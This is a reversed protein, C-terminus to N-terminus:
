EWIRPWQKTLAERHADQVQSFLRGPVYVRQGGDRQTPRIVTGVGKQSPKGLFWGLPMRFRIGKDFSGEGFDEASVNTLTFFAGVSWGNDFRRDLSFTAGYDGALYRGVDVQGEYGGGFDYYASAHSTVVSYDLFGFLQDYERQKVWNAEVGLALRSNVPKWLVEGSIGGYMTELYGGTIRAYLDNRPQWYKAAYLNNMTTDYQAYKVQDTRVHPLVSNSVRGDKVNGAIRQRIAGSVIWGPAPRWTGRLTVGVDLRFPQDPDFYAPSFYPSVAWGYDPYLDPDRIATDSPAGVDTFGAVALLADASLADFELAELDSRRLVTASLGMGDRVPVLRFTEVSAPMVLALARAARGVANTMAGYRLNRFRLEAEHASVDLSELVLGSEKMLPRLRQVYTLAADQSDAWGTNWANPSTKRDPRRTIPQPSPAVIMPSPPHNPNLQFQVTLGFESGYMFYAGVRTRDTWQYEVGFNFPSKKTFVNTTQTETVYDDSSYEVKFGLRDNPRYEVGGFLAAPGRFWQDWAVQGGTSNPDFSPREGYGGFSNYSGLRGWGIGGTVKLHGPLRYAGWGPTKFNKSAVFYEAAYIGTGVFDQLGMTIEPRYRGEKLLRFRVDFGRDYYTEFGGLNWNEIGNYRFSASMWPTAQFTLTYRSNGGFYSIGTTFQGDPLMASSPMDMLGPSGYFNLSPPPLPTFVPAAEASGPTSGPIRVKTDLGSLDVPAVTVQNGSQALVAGTTLTTLGWGAVVAAGAWACPRALTWATHPLKKSM